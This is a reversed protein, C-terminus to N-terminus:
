RSVVAILQVNSFATYGYVLPYWTGVAPNNVQACSENPGANESGCVQAFNPAFLYLDPDQTGTGNLIVNLATSGATVPVQYVLEANQAGSVLGLAVTVTRSVGESTATITAVTFTASPTLTILGTSSVSAVAPHSSTWTVTRGNLVNGAADRTSVGMQITGTRWTSSAPTTLLVQAVPEVGVRVDTTGSRGESTATITVTGAALGTVVGPASVTAVAPNSSAFTTARAVVPGGAANRANVVLSRAEGPPLLGGPLTIAITAVPAIGQFSAAGTKGDVSATIATSGDTLMTVLGSANVSAVTPNLSTWTVSKGTIVQGDQDLVEATLQQTGGIRLETVRPAVKITTVTKGPATTDDSSCAALGVGALLTAAALRRAPAFFAARSRSWRLPFRM